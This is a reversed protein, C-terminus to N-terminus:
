KSNALCDSCLGYYLINASTVTFNYLSIINEKCSSIHKLIDNDMVNITKGCSKCICHPHAADFDTNILEYFYREDDIQLKHIINNRKLFDVIRYVTPLSVKASINRSYTYIDEITMHDYRHNIIAKIVIRRQNTLRHGDKKFKQLINELINNKM